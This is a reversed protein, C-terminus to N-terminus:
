LLLMLGGLDGMPGPAEDAQLRYGYFHTYLIALALPIIFLLGTLLLPVCLRVLFHRGRLILRNSWRHCGIALVPMLVGGGFFLM